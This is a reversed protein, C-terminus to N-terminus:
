ALNDITSSLVKLRKTHRRRDLLDIEDQLSVRPHGVAHAGDVKRVQMLDKVVYYFNVFEVRLANGGGDLLWSYVRVM